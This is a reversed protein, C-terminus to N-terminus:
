KVIEMLAKVALEGMASSVPATHYTARVNSFKLYKRLTEEGFDAELADRKLSTQVMPPHFSGVFAAGTPNKPCGREILLQVLERRREEMREAARSLSGIMDILQGDTFQTWDEAM